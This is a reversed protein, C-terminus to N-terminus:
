RKASPVEYCSITSSFKKWGTALLWTRPRFVLLPEYTPPAPWLFVEDALYEAWDPFMAASSFWDVKWESFPAVRDEQHKRWNGMVYSLAHRAQTPSTIIEAHYRDPFVAGRRRPSQRGKSIAANLHKAASIQFGQVGTALAAKHDAEVLLHVHNRQISLHVIRFDERRATTLTAERIARYTSRRRLNSVASVVRLTVHVPYRAHLFPRQKHPSGARTGKPPRGAGRRKGGRKKFLPLQEPEVSRKRPARAPRKRNRV